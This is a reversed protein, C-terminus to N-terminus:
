RDGNNDNTVLNNAQSIFVLYRGNGSFVPGYSAAGGTIGPLSTSSVPRVPDPVQAFSFFSCSVLLCVVSYRWLMKMVVKRRNTSSTVSNKRCRSSGHDSEPM